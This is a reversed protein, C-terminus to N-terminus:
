ENSALMSRLETLEEVDAKPVIIAVNDNNLILLLKSLREDDLLLKVGAEDVVVMDSHVSSFLNSYDKSLSLETVTKNLNGDSMLDNTIRLFGNKLRETKKQSLRKIGLTSRTITRSKETSTPNTEISEHTDSGITTDGCANSQESLQVSTVVSNTINSQVSTFSKIHEIVQEHVNEYRLMIEIALTKKITGLSVLRQLEIPMDLIKLTNRIATTSRQYRQALVDVTYGMAVAQSLAYAQGVPNLGNSRNGDLNELYEEIPNIYELLIVDILPINAGELVALRLAYTRCHGQRVLYRGNRLVVKILDVRRGEKYAQKISTITSKVPELNYCDDGIVAERPNFGKELILDSPSIQIILNKTTTM